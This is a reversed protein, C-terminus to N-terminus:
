WPQVRRVLSGVAFPSIDSFKLYRQNPKKARFCRSNSRREGPQGAEGYRHPFPGQQFGFIPLFMMKMSRVVLAFAYGFSSTSSGLSPRPNKCNTSLKFYLDRAISVEHKQRLSNIERGAKLFWCEEPYHSASALHFCSLSYLRFRFLSPSLGLKGRVNAIQLQQLQRPIIM